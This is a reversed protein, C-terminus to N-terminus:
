AELLSPAAGSLAARGAPTLEYRGGGVRRILGRRRLRWRQGNFTHSSVGAKLRWAPSTLPGGAALAVLMKLTAGRLKPGRRATECTLRHPVRLTEFALRSMARASLLGLRRAYHEAVTRDPASIEIVQGHRDALPEVVAADRQYLIWTVRSSM